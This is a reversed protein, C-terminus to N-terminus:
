IKEQYEFFYLVGNYKIMKMSLWLKNETMNTQRLFSSIIEFVIKQFDIYLSKRISGDFEDYSSWRLGEIRPELLEIDWRRGKLSIVIYRQFRM